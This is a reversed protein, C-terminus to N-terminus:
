FPDLNLNLLFVEYIEELIKNLKYSQKCISFLKTSIVDLSQGNIVDCLFRAKAFSIQISKM